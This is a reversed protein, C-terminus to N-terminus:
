NESASTVEGIAKLKRANAAEFLIGVISCDANDDSDYVTAGLTHCMDNVADGLAGRVVTSSLIKGDRYLDFFEDSIKRLSAFDTMGNEGTKLPLLYLKNGAASFKDSPINKPAPAFATYMLERKGGAYSVSTFACPSALEIAPRYAGLIM